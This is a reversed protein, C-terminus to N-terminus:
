RTAASRLLLWGLVTGTVAWFLAEGGLSAVRFRWILTAPADVPDPPGPLVIYGVAVVAAWAGAMAPLRVHDVGGRGTSRLWRGLRWAGWVAVCSWGIMLLYLATRQDITDPSGVAPPNPPYKLAPVLAIALFAVAAVTVARRWDDRAALRHRVLAFVVALIAGACVGYVAAGLMGGVQQTARSFMDDHATGAGAHAQELAIADSIPGEGVIRLFLALAVGGALGALAGLKLLRQM